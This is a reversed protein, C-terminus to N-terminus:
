ASNRIVRWRWCRAPPILTASDTGSVTAVEPLATTNAPPVTTIASHESASASM